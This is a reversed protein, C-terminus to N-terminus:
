NKQPKFKAYLAPITMVVLIGLAAIVLKKANAVAESNYRFSVTHTGAPVQAAKFASYAVLHPTLKEDVYTQWQKTTADTVILFTPKPTVVEVDVQTPTYNTITATGAPKGNVPASPEPPVDGSLYVVQQPDFGPQLMGFRTEDAAARYEGYQVLFAKPYANPNQYLRVEKEGTHYDQLLIFGAAAMTDQADSPLTQILHTVGSMDLIARNRQIAHLGDGDIVEGDNAFFKEIFERYPRISLAGIWRASSTDAVVQVHRALLAAERDIVTTYTPELLLKAPKQSAAIEKPTPAVTRIFYASDSSLDAKKYALQIGTHEYSMIRVFYTKNKSDQIPEFCLDNSQSSLLSAVEVPMTRVAPGTLSEHISFIIQGQRSSLAQTEYSLCRFNETATHLPQIVSFASSIPDTRRVQQDIPTTQLLREHSYLRAPTIHSATYQKLIDTFPNEALAVARPLRPNYDWAYLLLSVLSIAVIGATSFKAYIPYRYSLIYLPIILIGVLLPVLQIANSSVLTVLQEFSRGDSPLHIFFPTVLASVIVLGTIIAALRRARTNHKAQIIDELGTASLLALGIDFFFVFRGPVALPPLLHHEVLYVYVPSHKGLAMTLAIVILLCGTVRERKRQRWASLAIGALFLPAFGVFTALEQFGKAGWYSEHNGYFYPLVLTIAHYPPYSFEYYEEPPLAGNRETQPLFEQLPLINISALGLAVAGAAATMGILLLSHRWPKNHAIVREKLTSIFQATEIVFAIIFSYLIIQPQGSVAMAGAVLTVLSTKAWTPNAILKDAAVLLWPLLMTTTYFNVHNLHGISFGSFVFVASLLASAPSSFGRNKGFWYAGVLGLAYYTIVSLQLLELPPVSLLRLILHVPTFFGLQGWSILPQGFGFFTSWLPLQWNSQFHAYESELPYYIIKLDDLFYVFQGSLLPSFFVLWLIGIFTIGLWNARLLAILKENM